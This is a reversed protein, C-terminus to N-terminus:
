RELESELLFKAPCHPCCHHGLSASMDDSDPDDDTDTTDDYRNAMNIFFSTDLAQYKGQVNRYRQQLASKSRTERELVASIDICSCHGLSTFVKHFSM